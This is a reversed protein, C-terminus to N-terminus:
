GAGLQNIADVVAAPNDTPVEHGSGAAVVLRGRRSLGALREQAALWAATTGRERRVVVMPLGGLVAASRDVSSATQEQVAPLDLNEKAMSVQSWSAVGLAQLLGLRPDVADVLVVGAVRERHGAVYHLVPYSGFSHGVLLVPRDPDAMRVVADLERDLQAADRGGGKPPPSDGAGPRDYRCVRREDPLKELVKQFSASGARDGIGHVLVVAPGATGRCEVRQREGAADEVAGWSAPSGCAAVVSVLAACVTRRLATAYM